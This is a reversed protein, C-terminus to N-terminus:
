VDNNPNYNNNNGPLYEEFPEDDHRDYAAQRSPPLRPLGGVVDDDPSAAYGPAEPAEPAEAALRQQLSHCNRLRTQVHASEGDFRTGDDDYDDYAAQQPAEPAIFTENKRVYCVIVLILIVLLLGCNVMEMNIKIGKM